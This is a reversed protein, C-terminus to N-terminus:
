QGSTEDGDEGNRTARGQTGAEAHHQQFGQVEGRTMQSSQHQALHRSQAQLRTVQIFAILLLFNLLDHIYLFIYIFCTNIYIYIYECM